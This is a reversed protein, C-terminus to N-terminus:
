WPLAEWALEVTLEGVPWLAQFSVNGNRRAM